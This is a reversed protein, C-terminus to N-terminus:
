FPIKKDKIVQKIYMKIASSTDLGMNEVIKRFEEKTEYDIRLSITTRKGEEKERKVM